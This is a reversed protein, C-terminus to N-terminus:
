ADRRRVAFWAIALLAGAALLYLGTEVGQIPWFHYSPQYTVSQQYGARALCDNIANPPATPANLIKQCAAPLSAVSVNNYVFGNGGAPVPKGNQLMGNQIVWATASPAWNSTLSVVTTVAPM